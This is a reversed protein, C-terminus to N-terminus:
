RLSGRRVAGSFNFVIMLCGIWYDNLSSNNCMTAFSDWGARVSLPASADSVFFTMMNFM